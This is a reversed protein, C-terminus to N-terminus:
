LHIWNVPTNSFWAPCYAISCLYLVSVFGDLRGRLLGIFSWKFHLQPPSLERGNFKVERTLHQLLENSWCFLFEISQSKTPQSSYFLPVELQVSCITFPHRSSGSCRTSVPSTDHWSRTHSRLSTTKLQLGINSNVGRRRTCHPLPPSDHKNIPSLYINILNCCKWTMRVLNFNSLSLSSKKSFTHSGWSQKWKRDVTVTVTFETTPSKVSLM